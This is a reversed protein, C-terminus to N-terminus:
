ATAAAVRGDVGVGVAVVGTAVAAAVVVLAAAATAQTWVTQTAAATAVRQGMLQCAAWTPLLVALAGGCRDLMCCTHPWRLAATRV